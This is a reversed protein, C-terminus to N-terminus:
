PLSRALGRVLGDGEGGGGAGFGKGFTAGDGLAKVFLVRGRDRMLLVGEGTLDVALDMFERKNRIEGGNGGGLSSVGDSGRLIGRGKTRIVEGIKMKFM